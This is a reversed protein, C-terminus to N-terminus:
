AAVLGKAREISAEILVKDSTADGLLCLYGAEEAKAIIDPRSDVVIFPIGEESFSRAIDEGVRGYGCLIFHDKLKTIKAKM